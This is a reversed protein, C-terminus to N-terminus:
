NTLISQQRPLDNTPSAGAQTSPGAKPSRRTEPLLEALVVRKNESSSKHRDTAISAFEKWDCFEPAYSKSSNEKFCALLRSQEDVALNSVFGPLDDRAIRKIPRGFFFAFKHDVDDISIVIADDPVTSALQRVESEISISRQVTAEMWLQNWVIGMLAATAFAGIALANTSRQPRSSYLSFTVIGGLAACGLWQVTSYDIVGEATGPILSLGVCSITVAGALVSMTTMLRQWGYQWHHQISGVWCGQISIAVLPAIFPYIPMYYRARAGPVLWVSPFTVLVTLGCFLLARRYPRLYDRFSKQFYSLLFPSWPLLCVLVEIPYTVMHVVLDWTTQRSFQLAVNDMFIKPVSDWGAMMGYPVLWAGVVLAYVAIGCLFPLEYLRRWQRTVLLYLGICAAFYTPAQPGKTLTAIAALTFALLWQYWHSWQKLEGMHWLMLSASILLTFLAETEGLRGLELVQLSTLFSLGAVLSATRGLIARSYFYILVGTLMTAICSYWRIAWVDIQGRIQGGIAILWNQLPPRSFYLEDQLRPVIWDGSRLIEVAVLARRSEEGRITLDTLRGGYVIGSFVLLLAVFAFDVRTITRVSSDVDSENLM